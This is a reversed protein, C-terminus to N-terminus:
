VSRIPQHSKAATSGQQRLLLATPIFTLWPTFYFVSLYWYKALYAPGLDLRIGCYLTDLIAFPITFYVSLWFARSLRVNERSRALVWVAALSILVSILVSGVGLVLASYQQFYDPWGAVFFLGWVIVAQLLLTLHKRLTM